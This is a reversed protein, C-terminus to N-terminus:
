WARDDVLKLAAKQAAPNAISLAEANPVMRRRTRGCTAECRRTRGSFAASWSSRSSNRSSGTLPLTAGQDSVVEIMLRTREVVYCVCPAFRAHSARAHFGADWSMGADFGLRTADTANEILTVVVSSGRM